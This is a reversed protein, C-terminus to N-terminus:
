EHDMSHKQINLNRSVLVAFVFVLNTTSIMVYGSQPGLKTVEFLWKSGEQYRFCTQKRFGFETHEM